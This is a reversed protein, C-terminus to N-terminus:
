HQFTVESDLISDWGGIARVRAPDVVRPHFPSGPLSAGGWTIAIDFVGPELPTYTALYNAGDQGGGDPSVTAAAM